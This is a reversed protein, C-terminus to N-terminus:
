ELVPDKWDHLVSSNEHPSQGKNGKEGDCANQHRDKLADGDVIEPVSERALEGRFQPAM